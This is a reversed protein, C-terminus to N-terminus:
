EQNLFDELREKPLHGSFDIAADEYFKIYKRLFPLVLINTKVNLLTKEVVRFDKEDLNYESFEENELGIFEPTFDKIPEAGLAPIAVAPDITGIDMGEPFVLISIECGQEYIGAEGDEPFWGEDLRCDVWDDQWWSERDKKGLQEAYSFNDNFWKQYNDYNFERM